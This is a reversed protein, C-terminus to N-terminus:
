DVEKDRKALALCMIKCISDDDPFSARNKTVKRLSANLSEISNTTYLMKRVEMPYAFFENLDDWRRLVRVQVIRRM